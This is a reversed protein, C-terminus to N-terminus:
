RAVRWLGYGFGILLGSISLYPVLSFLAQIQDVTFDPTQHAHLGNKLIILLFALPAVALGALGGVLSHRVVTLWNRTSHNLLIRIAFWGCIAVSLLLVWQISLDEFPVWIFISAGIVLGALRLWLPISTARRIV